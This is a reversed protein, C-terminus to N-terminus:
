VTAAARQLDNLPRAQRLQRVEGRECKRVVAKRILGQRVELREYLEFAQRQQAVLDGGGAQVMGAAKGGFQAGPIQQNGTSQGQPNVAGGM